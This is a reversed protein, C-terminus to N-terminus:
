HKKCKTPLNQCKVTMHRLCLCTSLTGDGLITAWSLGKGVIYWMIPHKSHKDYGAQAAM